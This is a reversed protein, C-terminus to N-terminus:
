LDGFKQQQIFDSHDSTDSSPLSNPQKDKCLYPQILLRHFSLKLTSSSHIIKYIQIPFHQCCVATKFLYIFKSLPFSLSSIFCFFISYEPSSKLKLALIKYLLINFKPLPKNM